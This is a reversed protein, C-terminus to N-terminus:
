RHFTEPSAPPPTRGEQAFIVSRYRQYLFSIALLVLGLGLFSFIRYLLELSSLDYLFIKVITVSFLVISIIRIARRRQWIGAIMYGISCMLWVGSLTLQKLNELRWQEDDAGVTAGAADIRQEFFDRAEGSFLILVLVVTVIGAASGMWDARAINSGKKKMWAAITWGGGILMLLTGARINFVPSFLGIPSFVLGRAGGVLAALAFLGAGSYVMPATGGSIGSRVFLLAGILWLLSLSLFRAFSLYEAQDEQSGSLLARFYDNTEITLFVALVLIWGYQFMDGVRTRGARKGASLAASLALALTLCIYAVAREDLRLAFGAPEAALSGATGILKLLALVFVIIASGRIFAFSWRRWIAMLLAALVSWWAVTVFGECQVALATVFLAITIVAYHGTLAARGPNRMLLLLTCGLYVLGMLFTAAGMWEHQTPNVATYLALYWLVANACSIIRRVGSVDPVERVMRYLDPALFLLWFLTVFFVTPHLDASSYWSFYWAVYTLLTAGLALPELALWSDKRIVVLILGADLLGLYSFLGAENATGTSLLLPTLFGGLWGLLAVAFSDYRFAQTFGIVTVAAMLLFALPQSVLHYFSFTAYVSLYLTAIGAGVLGQSFVAFGKKHSLAAGFLLLFGAAGGICVRMTDTIWNRDFAYKLFFGIGIILALAGIRNLLKGGILAEWEERTRSPSPPPIPIVPRPTSAQQPPPPNSPRATKAPAAPDAPFSKPAVQGPHRELEAVRDVLTKVTDRLMRQGRGLESFRILMVIGLIILAFLLFTILLLEGIPM